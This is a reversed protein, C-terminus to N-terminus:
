RAPHRRRAGLLGLGLLALTSAAPEPVAAATTEVHLGFGLASGTAAYGSGANFATAAVPSPAGLPLLAGTVSASGLTDAGGIEIGVWYDGAAVHWQGLTFGNWGDATYSVSASYLLQGPLPGNSDYLALTFTEGSAGGLVYASVATIDGDQDLHVRGAYSDNADLALAGLAPGTPTGTDIVAAQAAFALLLPAAAMLPLTKM